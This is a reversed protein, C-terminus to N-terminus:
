RLDYSTIYNLTLRLLYFLKAYSTNENQMTCSVYISMPLEGFILSMTKGQKSTHCRMELWRSSFVFVSISILNVLLKKLFKELFM